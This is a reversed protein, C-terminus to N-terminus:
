AAILRAQIYNDLAREFCRWATTLPSRAAVDEPLRPDLASLGLALVRGYTKTFLMAVRRSLSTLQYRHSQALKVILGKRKLRQLDYTAQWATYPTAM